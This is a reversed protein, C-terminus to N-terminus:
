PRGRQAAARRRAARAGASVGNLFAWADEFRFASVSITQGVLFGYLGPIPAGGNTVNAHHVRVSLGTDLAVLAAKWRLKALPSWDPNLPPEVGEETRTVTMM